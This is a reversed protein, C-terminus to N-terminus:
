YKCAEVGAYQVVTLLIIRYRLSVKFTPMEKLGDDEVRRLTKKSASKAPHRSSLRNATQKGDKNTWVKDSSTGSFLGSHSTRASYLDRAFTM